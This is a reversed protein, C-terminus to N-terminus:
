SAEPETAPDFAPGAGQFRDPFEPGDAPSKLDPPSKLDSPVLAPMIGGHEVDSFPYEALYAATGAQRLPESTPGHIFYLGFRADAATEAQDRDLFAHVTIPASKDPRPDYVAYETGGNDAVTWAQDKPLAAFMPGAGRFGDPFDSM